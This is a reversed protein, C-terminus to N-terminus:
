TSNSRCKKFRIDIKHGTKLYRDNIITYLKYKENFAVVEEKKKEFSRDAVSKLGGKLKNFDHNLSIYNLRHTEKYKLWYKLSVEYDELLKFERSTEIERNNIFWRFAGICFRLNHSIYPKMFFPNNVPYIGCTGGDKIINYVDTNLKNLTKIELTKEGILEYVTKIDDDMTLIYDGEDFYNSIAGRIEAIGKKGTIINIFSNNIKKKYEEKEDEVVFVYISSPNVKYKELTKLTREILIDARSLSPIAIKIDM